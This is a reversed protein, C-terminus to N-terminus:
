DSLGWGNLKLLEQLVNPNLTAIYFSRYSFAFYVALNFKTTIHSTM